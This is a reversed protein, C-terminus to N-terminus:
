SFFSSTVFRVTGKFFVCSSTPPFPHRLFHSSSEIGPFIKSASCSACVNERKHEFTTKYTTKTAKCSSMQSHLFIDGFVIHIKGRKPVAVFIDMRKEAYLLHQQCPCYFTSLCVLLSESNWGYLPSPVTDQVHCILTQLFFNIKWKEKSINSYLLTSHYVTTCKQWDPINKFPWNQFIMLHPRACLFFNEHKFIM